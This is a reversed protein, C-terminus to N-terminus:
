RRNLGFNLSQQSRCQPCWPLSTNQPYTSPTGCLGVTLADDAFVHQMVRHQADWHAIEAPTAERHGDRHFPLRTVEDRYMATTTDDLPLHSWLYVRWERWHVESRSTHEQAIFKQMRYTTRGFTRDWPDCRRDDDEVYAYEIADLPRDAKFTEGHGPGGFLRLDPM